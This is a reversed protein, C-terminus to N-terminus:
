APSAVGLVVRFGDSGSRDGPNFSIRYACRVVGRPGDFSGGRLERRVEDPARVNERGDGATYPYKYDPKEVDKGWLSVTWEWVNGAMDVCGYPSDGQPSYQGVPTTDGIQSECNCRAADWTNGWPWIRGDTGRAAKEWEAESPLRFTLGAPVVGAASRNLWDVFARADHWSVQTVPHDVKKAVSTQPGVPHQWNAGKEKGWEAETGGKRKMVWGFGEQEAQTTYGAAKVFASFQAVTVPTRAIYFEAVSLRHQPLENDYADAETTKASGMLFEGAPIRILDLEFPVTLKLRDPNPKPRTEVFLAIAPSPQPAASALAQTAAETVRRSDDEDRVRELAQRAALALGPDSGHLFRALEDVAGMRRRPGPDNL